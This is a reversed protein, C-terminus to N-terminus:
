HSWMISTQFNETLSALRLSKPKDGGKKDNKSSYECQLSVNFICMRLFFM